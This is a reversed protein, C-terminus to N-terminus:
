DVFLFFLLLNERICVGCALDSAGNRDAVAIFLIELRNTKMACITLNALITAVLVREKSVCVYVCM